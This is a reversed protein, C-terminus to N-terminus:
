DPDGYRQHLLVEEHDFEQQLRRMVSDSIENRDRLAIVAEREQAIMTLRARLYSFATPSRRGDLRERRHAIIKRLEPASELEGAGEAAFRELAAAGARISATRALREEADEEQGGVIGLLRILPALTLGQVVLTIFIVIFTIFIVAARGPLPAGHLAVYPLALAIVLSDGGRIGAWGGFLLHRWPPYPTTARGLRRDFWRPLYAGPFILVIRTAIMAGVVACSVGVLQAVAGKDLAQVVQPLQLGILIFILGELLFVLMEWM